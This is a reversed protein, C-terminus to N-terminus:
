GANSADIDIPTYESWTPSVGIKEVIQLAAPQMM